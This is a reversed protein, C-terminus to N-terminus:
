IDRKFSSKDHDVFNPDTHENENTELYKKNGIQNRRFFHNKLFSLVLFLTVDEAEGQRGMWATDMARHIDRGDPSLYAAPLYKHEESHHLATTWTVACGGVEKCGELFTLWGGTYLTTEDNLFPKKKMTIILKSSFFLCYQGARARKGFHWCKLVNVTGSSSPLHKKQWWAFLCVELLVCLMECIFVLYSLYQPPIVLQRKDRVVRESLNKMWVLRQVM